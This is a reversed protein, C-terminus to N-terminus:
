AMLKSVPYLIVCVWLHARAHVHWDRLLVQELLPFLPCLFLYQATQCKLDGAASCFHCNNLDSVDMLTLWLCLKRVPFLLLILVENGWGNHSERELVENEKEACLYFHGWRTYKLISMYLVHVGNPMLHGHSANEKKGPKDAFQLSCVSNLKSVCSVWKLAGWFTMLTKSSVDIDPFCSFLFFISFCHTDYLPGVCVFVSVCTYKDEPCMTLFTLFHMCQWDTGWLISITCHSVPTREALRLVAEVAWRCGLALLCPGCSLLEGGVTLVVGWAVDRGRRGAMMLEM